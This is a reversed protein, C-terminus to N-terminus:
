LSKLTGSWTATSNSESLSDSLAQVVLADFKEPTALAIRALAEQSSLGAGYPPASTLSVYEEAVAVIRAPGSIEDGALGRPIGSGDMRERHQEVIEAIIRYDRWRSVLRGGLEVHHPTREGLEGVMGVDHLLAGRRLAELVLADLGMVSGIHVAVSAVGRARGSDEGDRFDSALALAEILDGNVQDLRGIRDFFDQNERELAGLYRDTTARPAALAWRIAVLAGFLALMSVWRGAALDPAIAFGLACLAVYQVVTFPSGVDVSLALSPPGIWRLAIQLASVEVLYSCPVYLALTLLQPAGLAHAGAAALGGALPGLVSAGLTLAIDNVSAVRNVLLRTAGRTFGVLLAAPAGFISFAIAVIALSPGVVRRGPRLVDGALIELVAACVVLVALLSPLHVAATMAWLLLAGALGIM